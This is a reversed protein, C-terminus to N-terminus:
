KQARAPVSRRVGAKVDHAELIAMDILYALMALDKGAGDHKILDRALALQDMIHKISDAM